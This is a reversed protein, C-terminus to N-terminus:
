SWPDAVPADREHSVVEARIREADAAADTPAGGWPFRGQPLISVARHDRAMAVAEEVFQTRNGDPAESDFWHLFLIGSRADDDIPEVLYAETGAVVLDHIRAGDRETPPTSSM